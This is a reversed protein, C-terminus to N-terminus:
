NCVICAYLFRPSMIGRIRLRPEIHLLAAPTAYKTHRSAVLQIIRPKFVRRALIEMGKWIHGSAWGNGQKIAVPDWEYYGFRGTFVIDKPVRVRRAGFSDISLATGIGGMHAKM